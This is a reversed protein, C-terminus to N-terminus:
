PKISRHWIHFGLNGKYFNTRRTWPISHCWRAVWGRIEFAIAHTTWSLLVRFWIVWLSDWLKLVMQMWRLYQHVEPEQIGESILEGVFKIYANFIAFNNEITGVVPSCDDLGLLPAVLATNNVTAEGHSESEVWLDYAAPALSRDLISFCWPM